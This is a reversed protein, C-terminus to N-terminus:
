PPLVTRAVTTRALGRSPRSKKGRVDIVALLGRGRALEGAAEALPPAGVLFFDQGHPHDVARDAGSKGSPKMSSIWTWHKTMLWSWSFSVSM